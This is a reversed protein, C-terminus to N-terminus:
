GSVVGDQITIVRDAQSAIEMDHTVMVITQGYVRSTKKLLEIVENGTNSDLNGTPEDALILAPKAVIARAIAVRQQQGGSLEGPYFDQKNEIELTKLIKNVYEEDADQGDLHLPMLINELVTHEPLLNFSQFIFGIKRRRVVALEEDGISSVKKGELYVDGTTPRDLAGLIHLLTSKGSGSKGIIANFSGKEICLSTEKLARVCLEGMGYTKTVNKIELVSEM